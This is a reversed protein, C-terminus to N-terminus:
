GMDELKKTIGIPNAQWGNSEYMNYAISEEYDRGIQWKNKNRSEVYRDLALQNRESFSLNQWESSTLYQRTRDYNDSMQELSNYIFLEKYDTDIVDQLEPYLELLYNLEYEAEKAAEIREKAENRIVRIDQVKKERAQNTGWDLKKALVEIDYTLFDAMMGALYPMATLNSTMIKEFVKNRRGLEREKDAIIQSKQEIIIDKEDLTTKIERIRRRVSNINPNNNNSVKLNNLDDSIFQLYEKVVREAKDAKRQATNRKHESILFLILLLASVFPFIGYYYYISSIYNM